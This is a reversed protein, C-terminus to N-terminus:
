KMTSDVMIIEHSEVNQISLILHKIWQLVRGVSVIFIRTSM